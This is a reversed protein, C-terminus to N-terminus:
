YTFLIVKHFFKDCKYKIAAYHIARLGNIDREEINIKSRELCWKVLDKHGNLCAVQLATVGEANWGNLDIRHHDYIFKAAGIDGKKVAHIFLNIGQSMFDVLKMDMVCKVPDFREMWNTSLPKGKLMWKHINVDNFKIFAKTPDKADIEVVRGIMRGM